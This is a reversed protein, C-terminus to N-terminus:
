DLRLTTAPDVHAARRAPIWAALTAVLGLVAIAIALMRPDGTSTDYLMSSLLHRLASFALLGVVAGAIVSVLCRRAVTVAVNGRTAGLALRIGIERTRQQVVSAIVGYIGIGALMLASGAFTGILLMRFRPGAVSRSVVTSLPEITPALRPEEAMAEERLMAALRASEGRVLLVPARGEFQTRPVLVTPRPARDLGVEHIDAVVGIVRTQRELGPNLWRDKYHGIQITRGMPTDNGFFRRAFTQNVIAVPESEAVDDRAFDRGAILSVGLTAFYEPSVPRLEVAGVALEPHERTDVPMNGGRELPLNPAAAVHEVDPIRRIRELLRQVLQERREADYSAPLRGLRLATVREADFGPDVRMLRAFSATLLTAGALLVVASSTEVFVLAERTRAGGGTAGRAGSLLGSHLRLRFSPVAATLGFVLGTLASVAIAYGVARVDIRPDMGAPLASPAVALFSRLALWGLLVGLAASVASLVIGETLLQQLIRGPGAGISARVAIERQRASGRVLMLTATNACATLLVLSVAGFLLWLMRRVGGAHVDRHTFLKFAENPAALAPYAARFAASLMGVDAVRAAEGLDHRLRVIVDTNHGEDAPDARVAFPVLYGDYEVAPPFHFDAPLVGIVTRLTGNLRIERGVMAPDAGFRTRWVANGLIVVTPDSSELERADFERGLRPTFGITRFFGQSVRLGRVPTTADATDGLQLEETSFAALSEFSRNHDRAFEYQFATLSPIENGKAWEWGLYAFDRAHPIPLPRLLVADVVTFIATSAGIGLGVTLIAALAFSPARRLARVAFRVDTVVNEALRARHSERAAERVTEASGFALKAERVAAEATMGRDQNRRASMELHFAMEREMERELADDRRLTGRMRSWWARLSM